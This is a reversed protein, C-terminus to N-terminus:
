WIFDLSIVSADLRKEDTIIEYQTASLALSKTFRYQIGGGVILAPNTDDGGELELGVGGIGFFRVKKYLELYPKAYVGLIHSNVTENKFGAREKTTCSKQIPRCEDRYEDWYIPSCTTESKNHNKTWRAYMYMMGPDLGIVSNTSLQKFWEKDKDYHLLLGWSQSGQNNVGYNGSYSHGDVLAGGFGFEDALAPVSVALAVIVIAAVLLRSMKM